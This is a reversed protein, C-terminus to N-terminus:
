ATLYHELLLGAVAAPSGLFQPALHDTEFEIEFADELRTVLLMLKMSDVGAELFSLQPDVQVSQPAVEKMLAYVQTLVTQRDTELETSSM